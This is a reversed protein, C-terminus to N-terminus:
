IKKGNWAWVVRGLVAFSEDSPAIDWYDGTRDSMARIVGGPRRSLTKIYLHNEHAFVYVADIRVEKVGRDVLMLDGDSFTPAMSNGLGAIIALNEARSFSINTQVWERTLSIHDIVQDYEALAAGDGMSGTAAFRPIVMTEGHWAGLHLNTMVAAGTLQEVSLGVARGARMLEEAPIGRNKWNNYTATTIGLAVAVDTPRPETPHLEAWRNRFRAFATIDGM